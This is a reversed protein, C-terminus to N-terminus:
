AKAGKTLTNGDWMFGDGRWSAIGERAAAVDGGYTDSLLTKAFDKVIDDPVMM